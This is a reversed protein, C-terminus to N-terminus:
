FLHMLIFCSAVCYLMKTLRSMCPVHKPENATASLFRGPLTARHRCLLMERIFLLLKGSFTTRHTRNKGFVLLVTYMEDSTHKFAAALASVARLWPLPKPGPNYVTERQVRNPLILEIRGFSIGENQRKSSPPPNSDLLTEGFGEM